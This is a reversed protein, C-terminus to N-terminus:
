RWDGSAVFAAWFFPHTSKKKKRLERLVELYAERVSDATGLGKSFRAEYLARMWKRAAEDEVAWLSTILTQAGALRFARRLGFVGEGARIKGVGTDCASLVIWNVGSLDLTAVEEATLIGDEEEPGAAERHNAGALALGSLLLPNEGKIPPLKGVSWSSEWKNELRALASPCNNELFFGHTALHLIKKGPAAMKFERENAIAGTLKLVDWEREQNKKWISAVENIEKYTAPLPKFKLSQFDGCESRMGRFQFVSKVKAFLGQEPKNEPSLAAFLSTDDFTPDGLALLGNGIVTSDRSSILDREASLYHLLPGKEILYVESGIPLAAFSIVHMAGDPVLLVSRVEGLHSAIPDWVKRRLAKGAARYAAVSEKESRGPIRTGRAAEQGWDFILPEIEKAKGLPVVTPNGDQARLIFALYYPLQVPGHALGNETKVEKSPPEYHIYRAFAVLAFGPPLSAKIEVLGAQSQEFTERFTTSARALAREAKEKEDRAKDLLNRYDEEKSIFSSGRIVLDALHQRASKLSEILAAVEPKDIEIMKRHRVAMEDFVLARSRILSDWVKDASVEIGESDNAALSLCIDIGQPKIAAYALAQREALSLTMLRLHDRAIEESRLAEKLAAALQGGYLLYKSFECMRWAWAPHDPHSIKEEIALSRKIFTLAKKVDGKHSHIAALNQFADSISM